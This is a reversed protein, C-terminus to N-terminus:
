QKNIEIVDVIVYTNDNAFIENRTEVLYKRSYFDIAWRLM